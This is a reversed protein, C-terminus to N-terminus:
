HSPKLAHFDLRLGSISVTRDAFAFDDGELRVRGVRLM